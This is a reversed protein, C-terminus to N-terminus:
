RAPREYEPLLQVRVCEAPTAPRRSPRRLVQHRKPAARLLACSVAPCFAAGYSRGGTFSVLATRLLGEATRTFYRPFCPIPWGRRTRKRALSQRAATSWSVGSLM